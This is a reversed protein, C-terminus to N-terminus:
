RKWEEMKKKKWEEVPVVFRVVEVKEQPKLNEAPNQIIYLTPNTSANVVIYLYYEDKFRKAKFWENPTLAVEGEGVRAKVEIYRIEDKGKSRIDFGLNESSVDEPERGQMREYEMAIEMGIKEIEESEAMGMEESIVRIVTFLEPMNMTLSQEQEIEKELEKRAFGYRKKQEEKNIIPLDVKEGGAERVYLEVLEEDLKGILYDLSKIGYKRKIEAQRKREVAIEDKYKEVVELVFGLIEKEKEDPLIENIATNTSPVLDWLIAPNIEKKTNGNDYIALIKRGAIEGKGDTIEGIYFWIYGNLRGSPDKFVAGKEVEGRFKKIVWELLAELLPHGFSIFEADPNKFARDKDFTAKPYGKMIVGYRNKFEYSEAIKRIEYPISDITIFGNSEKIKGGAMEFARKFFEEVYEPVLRYEKAKDAMDKIRTYDIFKTALSEGLVERIKSIYEEDPKIDLEKLIEDMSKANTVADIILQYFNKGEFIDGIVDFVRDSGLKERIEELKDLLKSLVKGERTDQAVLNFIYVDRQQGYRHIRGMRQELRTPTWPIDYNIMIHCFQLNIGEGAAETAVM